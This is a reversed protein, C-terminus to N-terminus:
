RWSSKTRSIKSRSLADVVRGTLDAVLDRVRHTATADAGEVALFAKALAVSIKAQDFPTSSGDRRVVTLQISRSPQDAAPRTSSATTV